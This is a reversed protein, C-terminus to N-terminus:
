VAYGLGVAYEKLIKSLLDGEGFRRVMMDYQHKLVEAITEPAKVPEPAPATPENGPASTNPDTPAPADSSQAPMGEPAPAADVPATATDEPM